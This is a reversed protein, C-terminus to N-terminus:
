TAIIKKSVNINVYERLAPAGQFSCQINVEHIFLSQIYPLNQESEIHKIRLLDAKNLFLLWM